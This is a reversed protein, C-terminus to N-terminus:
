PRDPGPSARQDLMDKYADSYLSLMVMALSMILPGYLLGLPGFYKIGGIIALFVYFMSMGSRGGLLLPRLFSDIGSVVILGWLLLFVGWPWQGSFMLFLAAPGWVLATGAVPVLSTFGMVCGWFLPPIGALYLGLGGALGQCAAILFSGLVVSRSVSWLQGIIRNEQEETLPTLYKLRRLMREGDRILFFLVFVLILFDMTLIALNGLFTTGADLLYQGALKSFEMLDKQLDVKALDLFPLRARVWELAPTLRENSILADLDAGALWEHVATVSSLGQTLLAGTLFFLPLIISTVILAVTALAALASRGKFAERLRRFLPHFLAALVVGIIIIHVFPRLVIYALALSALVLVLLFTSFFHRSPASMVPLM